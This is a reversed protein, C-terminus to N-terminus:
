SPIDSRRSRLRMLGALMLVWLVGLAGGGGSSGSSTSNEPSNEIPPSSANREVTFTVSADDSLPVDGDDTAVVSVTYQGETLDDSSFTVSTSNTEGILSSDSLTWSLVHSDSVDSDVVLAEITVDGGGIIISSTVLGDQKLVLSVSPPLNSDLSGNGDIDRYVVGDIILGPLEQSSGFDWVTSDWSAYLTNSILCETNDSSTPCQLEALTAGFYNDVDSEGSSFEQGSTGKAWHSSTVSFSYRYGILGGVNSNGTVNGTAFSDSLSGYSGRGVLGGIYRDGIVSGTAFSNSLSAYYVQGVLGGVRYDGTIAGTSYSQNISADALYGALGGVDGDGTVSMIKGTLGLNSLSATEGKVYGFLGVYNTSPRDIYLNRIQHGNGDFTANFATSQDGIPQWGEGDNWYTDNADMVGDANTDFDLTTTLEYGSCNRQLTGELIVAPCGSSDSGGAETLIRGTGNLNYRVANLQELTSVEILGNSNEDADIVGDNNDDNDQSDIVGDNDVDNLSTDLTLGSNNQCSADCDTAWSDPYGDLDEDQWVASTMPFQDLTLGSSLICANDCGAKWADPHGDNDDDVSVAWHNPFADDGDLSGDGDSDRYVVGDIILGPLEQNAGFDWVTADWSTYLTNGILCESDDSSTPCQLEALTAGFYNNASSAGASSVQGSTDTAWHSRIVSFTDQYGILGGVGSNGNVSGTAYSNSLSTFSIRGVLGGVNWDGTVSGTAFGDNLATRSSYGVLGGVNDDGTIVGTSYNQTISADEARGVLGGVNDDGSVIGTSYSHTISAKDVMGSGGGAAGRGLVSMLKGTLGLNRLSAAEGKIYGFLGVYDTSPRDIYLNRIQHGNGDFTATFPLDDDGIPEWGEGENWYTDNEDMVGDANTDFDLTTTLEYGYCHRQLVGEFIVAPCGSSDSGGGESLTRGAGNLNYRVANLQELTSVDILGNSDADANLVGDTDSDQSDIVGDNDVDNLSTDLTLGSDNQCSADCNPVWSDPFGDLDADLWAAGTEPFQDLTLGSASRCQADCGVTWSDPYGDGDNDASSARNITFADDSDLSGDGDSDRYVVNDIILGPLEQNTGFDWVTEDWRGYLTTSSLCESDNSSTPCQLEALTAGFYNNASSAGASSEQGSTDIAWHSNSTVSNFIAGQLGGSLSHGTVYGTAFSHNLSLKNAYGVLGAVRDDGTVNGSSFSNNLSSNSLEGFLGGVYDNGTVSGTSFSNNLSLYNACGVLGGTKDDGVVSGTAFSNNLSNYKSYGVLGGVCLSGSIFGTVYVQNISSGEAVRGVLGGVYYGGTVSMLEGMLWLNRLAVTRGKAYGFLGVGYTNPRQIHLNRVQYGNGDFISSFPFDYDGIPQWGEGENWYTDNADMLGDANTDFDLTNTLEYGLCHRQLVEEFIIAPCGSSDSDGGESLMRGTGNLNYRVANLQELTSVEILGNSNEDADIVGDNNDDNDQSDIVGDNDVDNLSTDLTLGSNSQCSVDCDTAWSDPFGDLDEDQWVAAMTPYQDLILGSSSICQADCGITWIDPHGDGDNDASAARNNPFADDGDLSGDGDGDRYVVDNIILGPLEENTGFDWVAQGWSAYLTSDTLCEIDDSATPCQLETLTAGFYNDVESEGASLELKSTDIAWHNSFYNNLGSCSMLGGIPTDNNIVRGTSFNNILSSDRAGGLLGGACSNGVVSGTALTNNLLSNRVEGFLGGVNRFGIIIGTSYSSRITADMVYGAFGGVWHKGSVSMLQGTLGSSLIAAAEGRISSFLGVNNTSPRDIYLNRIQYGNGDFVASFYANWGGIPEWGEGDNWYTDNADMVGDANTDFDLTTTLEFGNCGETPCGTSEGYLSTGDLNNRIENLDALSNIEILGDDDLDYDTRGSEAYATSVIACTSIIFILLRQLYTTAM